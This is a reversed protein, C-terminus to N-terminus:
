GIAELSSSGLQSVEKEVYPYGKRQLWAVEAKQSNGLGESEELFQRDEEPLWALFLRREERSFPSSSDPCEEKSLRHLGADCADQFDASEKWDAKRKSITERRLHEAGATTFDKVKGLGKKGNFYYVDLTANQKVALEINAIWKSWWRCGWPKKEGYLPICWCEGQLDQLEEQPIPDHLGFHKSGEPLFVVAASIDSQRAGAVLEDWASAYKGPWSCVTERGPLVNGEFVITHEHTTHVAADLSKKPPQLLFQTLRAGRKNLLLIPWFFPFFFFGILFTEATKRWHTPKSDICFVVGGSCMLLSVGGWLTGVASGQGKLGAVTMAVVGAVSILAVCCWCGGFTLVCDGGAEVAADYDQLEPRAAQVGNQLEETYRGVGLAAGLGVLGGCACCSLALLAAALGVGQLQNQEDFSAVTSYVMAGLIVSMFISISVFVLKQKRLAARNVETSYHADIGEKREKRLRSEEAAAAEERRSFREAEAGFDGFGDSLRLHAGSTANCFSCVKADDRLRVSVELGAVASQISSKPYLPQWGKGSGLDVEVAVALDNLITCIEPEDAAQAAQRELDNEEPEGGKVAQAAERSSEEERIEGPCSEPPSLSAM